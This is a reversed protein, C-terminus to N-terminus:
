YIENKLKKFKQTTEKIIKIFKEEKKEFNDDMILDHFQKKFELFVDFNKLHIKKQFLRKTSKEILKYDQNSMIDKMISLSDIISKEKQKIKEKLYKDGKKTLSYFKSNKEKKSTILQNEELHKLIPYISGSSPKKGTKEKIRSMICYGNCPTENLESLLLTKLYGEM